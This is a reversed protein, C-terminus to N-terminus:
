RNKQSSGGSLGATPFRHILHSISLTVNRRVTRCIFEEYDKHKPLFNRSPM